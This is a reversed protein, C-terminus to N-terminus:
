IATTFNSLRHWPTRTALCQGGSTRSSSSQVAHASQEGRRWLRGAVVRVVVCSLRCMLYSVHSVCVYMNAHHTRQTSDSKSSEPPLTHRPGRHPTHPTVQEQQEQQEKEKQEKAEEQQIQLNHADWKNQFEGLRAQAEEHERELAELQRQIAEKQEAEKQLRMVMEQDPENPKAEAPAAPAAQQQQQQQPPQPQPDQPEDLLDALSLGEEEGLADQEAEAHAKQALLATRELEVQQMRSYLQQMRNPYEAYEKALRIKEEEVERERRAVAAARIRQEKCEQQAELRADSEQQNKDELQGVQEKLAQNETRLQEVRERLRELERAPDDDDGGEPGEEDAAPASEDGSEGGDPEQEEDALQRDISLELELKQDDLETCRFQWGEAHSLTEALDRKLDDIEEQQRAITAEAQALATQTEDVDEERRDLDERLDGRQERLRDLTAAPSERGGRQVITSRAWDDTDPPVGEESAHEM